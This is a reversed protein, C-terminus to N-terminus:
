QYKERSIANRIQTELKRRIKHIFKRGALRFINQLDRKQCLETVPSPRMYNSTLYIVMLIFDLHVSGCM